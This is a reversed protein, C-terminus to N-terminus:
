GGEAEMRTKNPLLRRIEDLSQQRQRPDPVGRSRLDARHREALDQRTVNDSQPRKTIAPPRNLWNMIPGTAWGKEPEFFRGEEPAPPTAAPAPPGQRAHPGLPNPQSPTGGVGKRAEETAQEDSLGRAKAARWTDVISKKQEPTQTAAAGTVPSAQRTKEATGPGLVEDIKGLFEKDLSQYQSRAWRQFNADLSGYKQAYQDAADAVGLEIEHKRKSVENVLLNGGPVNNLQTTLQPLIKTIITQGRISTGGSEDRLEGFVNGTALKTLAQAAAAQERIPIGLANMLGEAPTGTALSRMWTNWEQGAGTTVGLAKLKDLLIGQMKVSALTSAANDGNTRLTKHLEAMDKVNAGSTEKYALYQPSREYMARDSDHIAAVKQETSLIQGTGAQQGAATPAGSSLATAGEIVAARAKAYNQADHFTLSGGGPMRLTRQEPPPQNPLDPERMQTPPPPEFENTQPAQGPPSEAAAAAPRVPAGGAPPPVSQDPAGPPPAAVPAPRRGNPLPTDYIGHAGLQARAIREQQARTVASQVGSIMTPTGEKWVNLRAADRGQQQQDWRNILAQTPGLAGEVPAGASRALGAGGATLLGGLVKEGTSQEHPMPAGNVHAAIGTLLKHEPSDPTLGAAELTPGWHDMDIPKREPKPAPLIGGLTKQLQSLWTDGTDTEPDAM